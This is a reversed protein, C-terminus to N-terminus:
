VPEEHSHYQKEQRHPNVEGGQSDPHCYLANGHAVADDTIVDRPAVYLTAPQIFGRRHSVSSPADAQAPCIALPTQDVIDETARSHHYLLSLAAVGLKDDGSPVRISHHLSDPLPNSFSSLQSPKGCASWPLSSYNVVM